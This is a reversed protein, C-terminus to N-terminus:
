WRWLNRFFRAVPQIVHQNVPQIVNQTIAQAAQQAFREVENFKSVVFNKANNGFQIVQGLVSNFLNLADLAGRITQAATECDSNFIDPCHDVLIRGSCNGPVKAFNIYDQVLPQCTRDGMLYDLMVAQALNGADHRIARITVGQLPRCRQVKNMFGDFNEHQTVFNVFCQREDAPCFQIGGRQAIRQIIGEWQHSPLRNLFPLRGLINRLPGIVAQATNFHHQHDAILNICNPFINLIFVIIYIIFKFNTM